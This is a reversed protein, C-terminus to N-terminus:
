LTNKKVPIVGELVRNYFESHMLATKRWSYYSATELGNRILKQRQDGDKLIKIINQAMARHDMPSILMSNKGDELYETMPEIGSAIVPVGSAMAELVVLGWGENLSPFVFVDAAAYLDPLSDDAVNGLIAVDHDMRLGLKRLEAFFEERYNRYDFLTEGGGILWVLREVNKKYFSRAIDFARLTTLTNKRPEIGGISLIVKFGDVSFRKKASEISFEGAKLKSFRDLDVGNHTLVPDLSYTSRLKKEWFKSVVLLYDPELVSKLQCNILSESTFDDLHHVTRVFSKIVDNKRLELLANASICDEAHYIDYIEEISSLFEYYIKIYDTIKEDINKYDVAPCPILTHPVSVPRFFEPTEDVLLGEFKSPAANSTVGKANNPGLAYVHVLHGLKALNEGLNLTHVVGGRPKTSYTFLAIKLSKM